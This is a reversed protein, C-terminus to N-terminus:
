DLSGVFDEPVFHFFILYCYNGEQLRQRYHPSDTGSYIVADNEFLRYPMDDIYIPWVDKQSVCLDITYKCQPRDTHRPCIGGDRYLSLFSYSKKVPTALRESLWPVLMEHLKVIAPENNIYHRNFALDQIPITKMHNAIAEVHEKLRIFAEPQFFSRVIVPKM